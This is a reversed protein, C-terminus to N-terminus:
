GDNVQTRVVYTLTRTLLSIRVTAVNSGEKEVYELSFQLVPLASPKRSRPQVRSFESLLGNPAKGKVIKV